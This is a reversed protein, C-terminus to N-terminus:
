SGVLRDYESHTGVWLWIMTDAKLLGIARHHEGVRVTFRNGSGQLRRFHLSPHNPDGRWLQYNKVALDQVNGPLEHFLEWFRRTGISNVKAAAV